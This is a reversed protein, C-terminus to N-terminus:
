SQTSRFECNGHQEKYACLEKYKQYWAAQGKRKAWQFGVANLAAIKHPTMSSKRREDYARKEM